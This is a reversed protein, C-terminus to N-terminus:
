DEQLDKKDIGAPRLLYAKVRKELREKAEEEDKAQVVIPCNWIYRKM